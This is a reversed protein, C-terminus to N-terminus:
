VVWWSLICNHVITQVCLFSPATAVAAAKKMGVFERVVPARMMVRSAITLRMMCLLESVNNACLIRSAAALTAHPTDHALMVRAVSVCGPPSLYACAYRCSTLWAGYASPGYIVAQWGTIIPRELNVLDYAAPLAPIRKIDAITLGNVTHAVANLVLPFSRFLM